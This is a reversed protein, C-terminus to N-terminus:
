TASLSVMETAMEIWLNYQLVAGWTELVNNSINPLVVWIFNECNFHLLWLWFIKLDFKSSRASPLWNEIFKQLKIFLLILCQWKYIKSILVHLLGNLRMCISSSDIKLREQIMFSYYSCSYCTLFNFEAHSQLLACSAKFLFCFYKENGSWWSRSFRIRTKPTCSLVFLPYFFNTVLDTPIITVIIKM